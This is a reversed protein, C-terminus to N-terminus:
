LEIVCKALTVPDHRVLQLRLGGKNLLDREIVRRTYDALEVRVKDTMLVPSSNDKQAYLEVLAPPVPGTNVVVADLREKGIDYSYLTKVFDTVTFNRTESAKTMLNAVYVLQAKSQALVEAVGEVLFNPIISTYLDGPGIVIIDAAKLADAAERCILATPNLWVREITREDTDPRTDIASEGVIVTGDNLKAYLQADNVSIPLVEGRIRLLQSVRRLGEIPGWLQQATLLMLNGFSHKSIASTGDTDPFRHAFMERMTHDKDDALALLCRRIDGQPLAGFEDRLIGTSGGSDFVTCIATPHVPYFRLGSNVTFGGTGGGLTVIRLDTLGQAM